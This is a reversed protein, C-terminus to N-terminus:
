DCSLALLGATDTRPGRRCSFGRTAGTVPKGAGTGGLRTRDGGDGGPGEGPGAGTIILGDVILPTVAVICTQGQRDDDGRANQPRDDRRCWLGHRDRRHRCRAFPDAGDAHRFHDATGPQWHGGPVSGRAGGASRQRCRCSGMKLGRRLMSRSSVAMPPPNTWRQDPLSRCRRPTSWSRDRRGMPPYCAFSGRRGWGRLTAPM